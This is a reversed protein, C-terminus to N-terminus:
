NGRDLHLGFAVNDYTSEIYTNVWDLLTITKGSGTPSKIVMEDVAYEPATFKLLKDVLKQQFRKLEIM